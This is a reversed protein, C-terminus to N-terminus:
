RKGSIVPPVWFFQATGPYAWARKDGFNKIPKPHVSPITRYFKFNTAKGTGSIIPPVWFITAAGPYVSVGSEGFNKVPKQESQGQSHVPWIKAKGTGSIITVSTKPPPQSGWIKPFPLSYLTPYPVTRFLTPLYRYAMWLLKEEIKVRKLSIAAKTSWCAVKGWGV